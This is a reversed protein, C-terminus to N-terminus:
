CIPYTFYKEVIMSLVSRKVLTLLTLYCRILFNILILCFMEFNIPEHIESSDDYIKMRQCNLQCCPM